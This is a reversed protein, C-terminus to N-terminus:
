CKYRLETIEVVTFRGKYAPHLYMRIENTLYVYDGIRIKLKNVNENLKGQRQLKVAILNLKAIEHSKPLKFKM